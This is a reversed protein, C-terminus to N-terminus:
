IKVSGDNIKRAYEFINPIEKINNFEYFKYDFEEIYELLDNLTDMKMM